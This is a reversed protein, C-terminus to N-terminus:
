TPKFNHHLIMNESIYTHADDVEIQYVNVIEKIYIISIIIVDEFVNNKLKMLKDGSILDKALVEENNSMFKHTSSCKIKEGNDLKFLYYGDNKIVNYKTIKYYDFKNVDYQHTTYVLDGIGLEKVNKFKNPAVMLSHNGLLCGSCGAFNGSTDTSWASDGAANYARVRYWYTSDCVPSYVYSSVSDNVLFSFGVSSSTTSVEIRFSTENDSNDTWSVTMTQSKLIWAGSCNTPATPITTQSHNVFDRMSTPISGVTPIANNSATTLAYTGVTTGEVELHIDELSTGSSLKLTGSGLAM